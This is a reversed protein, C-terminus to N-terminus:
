IFQQINERIMKEILKLKRRSTKIDLQIRWDGVTDEEDEKIETVEIDVNKEDVAEFMAEGKDSSGLMQEFSLTTTSGSTPNQIRYKGDEEPRFIHGADYIKVKDFFDEIYWDKKLRFNM